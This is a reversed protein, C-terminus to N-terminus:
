STHDLAGNQLIQLMHTPCQERVHSITEYSLDPMSRSLRVIHLTSTTCQPPSNSQIILGVIKLLIFFTELNRKNNV